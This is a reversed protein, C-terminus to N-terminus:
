ISQRVEHNPDEICSRIWGHVISTIYTQISLICLEYIPYPISFQLWLILILSSWKHNCWIISKFVRNSCWSRIFCVHFIWGLTWLSLSPITGLKRCLCRFRTFLIYYYFGVQHCLRTPPLNSSLTITKFITSESM